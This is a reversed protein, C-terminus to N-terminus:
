SPRSPRPDLRTWGYDSATQSSTMPHPWQRYYAAAECRGAGNRRILPDSRNAGGSPDPEGLRRREGSEEARRKTAYIAAETRSSMKLKRLLGTVYNKVTHEALFM